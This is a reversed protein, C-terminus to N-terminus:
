FCYQILSSQPVTASGAVSGTASQNAAGVQNPICDSNVHSQQEAIAKNIAWEERPKYKQRCQPSLHGPKGCCFCKREMQAFSLTPTSEEQTKERENKNKVKKIGANDSRHNSLVHTAHTISTPYQNNGLSQQTSLGSLLSGYKSKDSNDMYMFTMLMEFAKDRCNNVKEKDFEDYDKMSKMSKTLEIPGGIHLVLFDLSTMFRRTYDQLSEGEKQRLNVMTRLANCIISMEYRHEQYHLAHQKIAKLLAIPDSKITEFDNRTEIKNQMAKTCQGWLFAYAKTFNSEYAEVRRKYSDDDVEFKLELQRNEVAKTAEDEAKSLTLKPEYQSLECPKLEELATGIDNGYTFTERIHNILYETTNEYDSAQKASGLYYIYDVVSKKKSSNGFPTRGARASSRGRGRGSRGRGSRGRGSRGRGRGSM